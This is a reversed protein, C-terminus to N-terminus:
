YEELLELEKIDLEYDISDEFNDDLEVKDIEFKIWNELRANGLLFNDQLNEMEDLTDM